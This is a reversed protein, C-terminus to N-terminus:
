ISHISKSPWDPYIFYLLIRSYVLSFLMCSCAVQLLALIGRAARSDGVDGGCKGVSWRRRESMEVVVVGQGVHGGGGVGSIFAEIVLSGGPVGLGEDLFRSTM